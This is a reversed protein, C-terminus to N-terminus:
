AALRGDIDVKKAVSRLGFAAVVQLLGVLLLWLGGIWALATLTIEPWLLVAGGALIGLIGSAIAVGRGPVGAASLGMVLDFIGRVLWGVGVILALIATAQTIGQFAVFGLVISLAGSIVSLVRTSTQQDPQTFGAVISFIGSVLLSIGLLVALVAITKDPWAMVAVGLGAMVIGFSLLIGWHRGLAGLVQRSEADTLDTPTSDTPISEDSTPLM